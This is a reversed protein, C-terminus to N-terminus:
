QSSDGHDASCDRGRSSPPLQGAEAVSARMLRNIQPVPSQGAAAHVYGVVVPVSPTRRLSSMTTM